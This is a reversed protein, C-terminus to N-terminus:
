GEASQPHAAAYERLHQEWLPISEETIRQQTQSADEYLRQVDSPHEAKVWRAFPEWMLDSFGNTMFALHSEVAVIKGDRITLEKYDGRYPGLGIEDSRMTHHDYTCRAVIGAASESHQQCDINLIKISLAQSFSIDLRYQEEGGTGAAIFEDSLYTLARDADFANEAELFDTTVEEAASPADGTADSSPAAGTPKAETAPTTAREPREGTTPSSEGSDSCSAVVALSALVARWRIRRHNM